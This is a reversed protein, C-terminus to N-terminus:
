ARRLAQQIRAGAATIIIAVLCGVVVCIMRNLGLRWSPNEATMTVIVLAALASRTAKGLRLILCAALTAAVATSLALLGIRGATLIAVLGVTAGTINAKMRDLALRVSEKEDPDLVLLVSVISWYFPYRPFRTYLGYCVATGALCEIAYRLYAGRSAKEKEM